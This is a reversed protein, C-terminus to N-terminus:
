IGAFIRKDPNASIFDADHVNEAFFRRHMCDLIIKWSLGAFKKRCDSNGQRRLHGSKGSVAGTCCVSERLVASLVGRGLSCVILVASDSVAM